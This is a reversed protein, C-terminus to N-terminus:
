VSIMRMRDLLSQRSGKGAAELEKDSAGKSSVDESRAYRHVQEAFIVQAGQGPNTRRCNQTTLTYMAHRALSFLLV